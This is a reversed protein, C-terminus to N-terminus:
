LIKGEDPKMQLYQEGGGGGGWRWGGTSVDQEGNACRQRGSDSVHHIERERERVRERQSERCKFM